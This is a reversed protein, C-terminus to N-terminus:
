ETDKLNLLTLMEQHIKGNTALIQKNEIEFPRANFDTVVGGAERAILM